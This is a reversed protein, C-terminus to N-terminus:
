SIFGAAAEDDAEWPAGQYDPHMPSHRWGAAVVLRVIKRHGREFASQAAATASRGKRRHLRAAVISAIEPWRREHGVRLWYVDHERETLGAREMTGDIRDRAGALWQEWADPDRDPDPASVFVVLDGGRVWM